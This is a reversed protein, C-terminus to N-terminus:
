RVANLGAFIANTTPDTHLLRVRDVRVSGTASAGAPQARLHTLQGRWDAHTGFYVTYTHRLGDARAGIMASKGASFQPQAATAFFVQMTPRTVDIATLMEIQIADYGDLPIDLDPSVLQPEGGMLPYRWGPGESMGAGLNIPTWGAAGSAFGWTTRSDKVYHIFRTGATISYQRTNVRGCNTGGGRCDGADMQTTSYTGNDFVQRVVALHGAVPDAGLVGPEFVAIDGTRPYPGVPWGQAGANDDWNRPEGLNAPLDPRNQWAWYAPQGFPYPNQRPDASAMIPAALIACILTLSHLLLAKKAPPRRM